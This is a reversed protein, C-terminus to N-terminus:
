MLYIIDHTHGMQVEKVQIALKGVRVLLGISEVMNRKDFQTFTFVAIGILSETLPVGFVILRKYFIIYCVNFQYIFEFILHLQNVKTQRHSIIRLNIININKTCSLIPVNQNVIMQTFLIYDYWLLFFMFLRFLILTCIYFIWKDTHM